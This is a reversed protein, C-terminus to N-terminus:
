KKNKEISLSIGDLAAVLIVFNLPDIDDFSKIAQCIILSIGLILIILSLWFHFKKEKNIHM